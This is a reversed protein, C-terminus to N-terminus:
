WPRRMPQRSIILLMHISISATPFESDSASLFMEILNITLEVAGLHLALGLACFLSISALLKLQTGILVGKISASTLAQATVGDPLAGMSLLAIGDEESSADDAVLQGDEYRWSNEVLTQAAEADAPCVFMSVPALLMLVLLASFLKLHKNM